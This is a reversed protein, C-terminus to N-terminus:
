PGGHVSAHTGGSSRAAARAGSGGVRGRARPEYWGPAPAHVTLRELVIRQQEIGSGGKVELWVDGARRVTELTGEEESRVTFVGPHGPVAQKGALGRFPGHGPGVLLAMASLPWDGYYLDADACQVLEVAGAAAPVALFHALRDRTMASQSVERLGALPHVLVKCPSGAPASPAHRPPSVDIAGVRLARLAQVRQSVSAEGQVVLWANGVRRATLDENESVSPGSRDLFGPAGPVPRMDPLAAPPAGPHKADLLVAAELWTGRLRFGLGVCSLFAHGIIGPDPAIATVITGERVSVGSGRRATLPCRGQPQRQPYQWYGAPEKPPTEYFGGAIPRGAADLATLRPARGSPTKAPLEFVAARFGYPLRASARTLVTPGNAVRVAAVQPAALVYWLGPGREGDQGFLPSGVAPTGDCGGGGFGGGGRARLSPVDRFHIWTCWGISGPQLSPTLTIEYHAGAVSLNGRADYPPVIGALSRSREGVILVAAAASGGLLIVAAVLLLGRRPRRLASRSSGRSRKAEREVAELLHAEVREFYDSM